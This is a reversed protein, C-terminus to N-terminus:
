TKISNEGDYKCSCSPDLTFKHVHVTTLQGKEEKSIANRDSFVDPHLFERSEINVFCSYYTSGVM